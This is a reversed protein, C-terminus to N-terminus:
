VLEDTLGRRLSDIYKELRDVMDTVIKCLLTEASEKYFEFTYASVTYSQVHIMGYEKRELTIITSGPTVDPEFKIMYGKSNLDMILSALSSM